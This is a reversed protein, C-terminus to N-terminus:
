KPVFNQDGVVIGSKISKKIIIGGDPKILTKEDGNRVFPLGTGTIPDYGGAYPDAGTTDIPLKFGAAEFEEKTYYKEGTSNNVAYPIRTDEVPIVPLPLTISCLSDDNLWDGITDYAQRDTYYLNQIATSLTRAYASVTDRYLKTGTSMNPNAIFKDRAIRACVVDQKTM